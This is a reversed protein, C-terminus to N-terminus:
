KRFLSKIKRMIKSIFSYEIQVWDGNDRLYV